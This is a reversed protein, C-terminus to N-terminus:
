EAPTFRGEAKARETVEDSAVECFSENDGEAVECAAEQDCPTLQGEGDDAPRTDEDEILAEATGPDGAPGPLTEETSTTTPTATVTVTETVTVTVTRPEPASATDTPLATPATTPATSTPATPEFTATSRTIPARSPRLPCTQSATPTATPADEGPVGPNSQHAYAAAAPVALAAVAAGSLAITRLKM